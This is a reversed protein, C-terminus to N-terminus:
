KRLKQKREFELVRQRGHEINQNTLTSRNEDKLEGGLAAALGHATQILDDYAKAGECACPLSLFLCVGPTQSSKINSLDFSGPEIMNAASYLVAGDADGDLHRHFIGRQGFKLQQETMAELLAEGNFVMGKPAMVNVILLEEADSLDVTEEPEPPSSSFAAFLSNDSKEAAESSKDAARKAKAASSKGPAYTEPACAPADLDSLEGLSPELTEDTQNLEALALDDALARPEPKSDQQAEVSEMLMPVPEELELQSQLPEVNIKKKHRVAAQKVGSDLAARAKSEDATRENAGTENIKRDSVKKESVKTEDAAATDLDGNKKRAPSVISTSEDGGQEEFYRDAKRANASLKVSNKRANRARRLGDLVIAVILVLIIVSLADSM